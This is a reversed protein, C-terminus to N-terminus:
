NQHSQTSTIFLNYLTLCCVIQNNKDRGQVIEKRRGLIPTVRLIGQGYIIRNTTSRMNAPQRKYLVTPPSVIIRGTIFLRYVAIKTM